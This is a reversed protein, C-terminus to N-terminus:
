SYIAESFWIGYELKTHQIANLIALICLLANLFAFAYLFIIDRKFYESSYEYSIIVEFFVLGFYVVMIFLALLYNLNSIKILTLLKIVYFAIGLIFYLYEGNFINKKIEKKYM